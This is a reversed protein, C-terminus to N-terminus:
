SPPIGQPLQSLYTLNTQVQQRLEETLRNVTASRDGQYQPFYDKLNVPDGVRIRVRRHGKPLPQDIRFVARELRTLTDLFREPTPHDAVYGDYIADFNLLRAAAIHIRNYTWFADGTFSEAQSELTYQIRYVRERALDNPSPTIGLTQECSQLVHNRLAAIRDNWPLQATVESYLDYDRELDALVRNAIARLREYNTGTSPLQLTRELRTLTTHLVPAMDGTYHYKLSLPVVYLDPVAEGQRVLRNMSQFAVQIAGARFPMVTDNQFSCGGEPFIVLRCDPQMILEMTKAVSPRDGLGRRISYAGMRQLCWGGLGRFREYAALYYFAQRVQASLLFVAVWDYFTPHNPLLVM